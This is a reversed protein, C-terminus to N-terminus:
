RVSFTPRRLAPTTTTPPSIPAIFSGTLTAVGSTTAGFHNSDSFNGPVSSVSIAYTAPDLTFLLNGLNGGLVTGFSTLWNGEVTCGSTSGSDTCAATGPGPVWGLFPCYVTGNGSTAIGPAGSNCSAPVAGAPPHLEFQGVTLPPESITLVHNSPTLSFTVTGGTGPTTYQYSGTLTTVDATSSGMLQPFYLNQPVPTTDITPVVPHVDDRVNATTLIGFTGAGSGTTSGFNSIADSESYVLQGQWETLPVVNSGIAETADFVQVGGAAGAGGAPLTVQIEQPTWMLIPPKTTGSADTITVVGQATPFKGFIDLTGGTLGESDMAMTSIAPYAYFIPPDAVNEGGLDSPIWVAKTGDPLPPASVNPTFGGDSATYPENTEGVGTGLPGSRSETKMISEIDDLPFPRQPPSRQIAYQALLTVPSQEGLMRDFIFADTQDADDGAVAKTWGTYRGVGAVKLTALVGDIIAPSEGFCSQNDVIAGANFSLHSTLFAPTFAFTPFYGTNSPPYQLRVGVIITGALYDAGYTALSSTSYPTDSLWAYFPTSSPAATAATTPRFRANRYAAVPTATPAITPQTVPLSVMGHTAISLIDLRHGSLAVISELTMNLVDVNYATNAFTSQFADDFNSQTSPNFAKTDTTNVLFGVEHDNPASVDRRLSAPRNQMAATKESPTAGYGLADPRDAFILVPTGSATVATIGGYSVNAASYAGSSVMHAALTKLDTVINQHPLTAYYSETGQLAATVAAVNAAASSSIPTPTLSPTPTATLRASPSAIPSPSKKVPVLSVSNGSCGAIFALFGLLVFGRKSARM